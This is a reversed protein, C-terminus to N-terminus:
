GGVVAQPVHIPAFIMEEAHPDFEAMIRGSRHGKPDIYYAVMGKAIMEGFFRKAESIQAFDGADWSFREDGAEETPVYMVRHGKPREEKLRLRKLKPVPVDEGLRNGGVIAPVVRITPSAHLRDEEARIRDARSMVIQETKQQTHDTCTM